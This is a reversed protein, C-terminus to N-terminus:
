VQRDTLGGSTKVAMHVENNSNHILSLNDDDLGYDYINSLAEQLNISDFMQEYDYIQLLIAKKNRNHLTEHIIGNIIWINTKCGKWNKAGM